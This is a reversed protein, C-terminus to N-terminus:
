TLAAMSHMGPLTFLETLSDSQEAAWHRASRSETYTVASTPKSRPAENVTSKKAFSRAPKASASLDSCQLM